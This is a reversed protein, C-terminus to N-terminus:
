LVKSKTLNLSLNLNLAIHSMLVSGCVAVNLSEVGSMMPIKLAKYSGKELSSVGVGQGEHSLVLAFPPQINVKNYNIPNLNDQGTTIYFHVDDVLTKILEALTLTSQVIPLSFVLGASSRIVKPSYCDVTEATTIFGTLGFAKASRILTGVNGPDQLRDLVLWMPQPQDKLREILLTEPQKFIGIITTPTKTTSLSALCEENASFVQEASNFNILAAYAEYKDPNVFLKQCTLGAKLAEEVPHLGEVFILHEQQRFKAQHLQKISKVLAKSPSDM